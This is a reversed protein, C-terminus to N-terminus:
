GCENENDKINIFSISVSYKEIYEDMSKRLIYVKRGHVAYKLEDNKRLQWLKTRSTNLYQMAQAATVWKSDDQSM